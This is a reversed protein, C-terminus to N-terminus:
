QENLPTRFARRLDGEEACRGMKGGPNHRAHIHTAGLRAASAWKEHSNGCRISLREAEGFYLPHHVNGVARCLVYNGPIDALPTGFPHVNYTYPYGSIGTWTCTETM